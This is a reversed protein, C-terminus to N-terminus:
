PPMTLHCYEILSSCVLSRGVQLLRCETPTHLVECSSEDLVMFAEERPLAVLLPALEGAPLSAALEEVRSRIEFVVPESYSTGEEDASGFGLVAPLRLLAPYLTHPLKKVLDSLMSSAVHDIQM